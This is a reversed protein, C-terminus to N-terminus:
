PRVVVYCPFSSLGLGEDWFTTLSLPDSSLPPVRAKIPFLAAGFDRSLILQWGCFKTTNTPVEKKVVCTGPYMCVYIIMRCSISANINENILTGVHVGRCAYVFMFLYAAPKDM